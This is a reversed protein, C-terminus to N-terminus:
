STMCMGTNCSQCARSRAASGALGVGPPRSRSCWASRAGRVFWWRGRAGRSHSYCAWFPSWPETIAYFMYLVQIHYLVLYMQNFSVAPSTFHWLITAAVRLWFHELVTGKVLLKYFTKVNNERVLLKYM